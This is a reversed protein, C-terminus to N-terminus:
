DLILERYTEAVKAMEVHYNNRERVVERNYDGFEARAKENALLSLIKAALAQFDEGPYLYGGKGDAVWASNDSNDTTIVPLGCAMAEATSAALGADTLSTSVYIDSSSLWEVMEVETVHGVFTIAERCGLERALTELYDREPGGGVVVFNVLANEALVFPVARIFSEVDRIKTLIRTSIVIPSQNLSFKHMLEQSRKRSAPIRRFDVGFMIVRTKAEAVGLSIAKQRVFDADCIVSDAQKLTLSSLLRSFFSTNVDINIDTGWPTVVYPHFGSLWAMWAYSTLSHAHILDPAIERLKIRTQYYLFPLNLLRALFSNGALPKRLMHIRVGDYGPLSKDNWTILDVEHGQEDFYKVWRRTHESIADSLFCLKM